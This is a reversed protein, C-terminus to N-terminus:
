IAGSVHDWIDGSAIMEMEMMNLEMTNTDM